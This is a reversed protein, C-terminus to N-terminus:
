AVVFYSKHSFDHIKNLRKTDDRFRVIPLTQLSSFVLPKCIFSVTKCGKHCKCCFWNLYALSLIQTIRGIHIQPCSSGSIQSSSVMNITIILVIEQVRNTLDGQNPPARRCESDVEQIDGAGRMEEEKLWFNHMFLVQMTVCKYTDISVWQYGIIKHPSGCFISPM